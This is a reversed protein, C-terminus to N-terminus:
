AEIYKVANKIIKQLLQLDLQTTRRYRLCSKGIDLKKLAPRFQHVVHPDLYLSVYHKQAALSALDKENLSYHLMGYKIGEKVQSVVEFILSRISELIESLEGSVDTRYASPSSANRRM